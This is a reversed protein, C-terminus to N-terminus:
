RVLWRRSVIGLALLVLATSWISLGPVAPIWPETAFGGYVDLPDPSAFARLANDILRTPIAIYPVDSFWTKDPIVM